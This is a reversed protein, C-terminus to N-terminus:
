RPRYIYNVAVIVADWLAGTYNQNGMDVIFWTSFVGIIFWTLQMENSAFWRRINNWM